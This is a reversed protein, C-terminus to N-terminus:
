YYKTYVHIDILSGNKRVQNVLVTEYKFGNQQLVQKDEDVEAYSMVKIDEERIRKPYVLADLLQSVQDNFNPHIFYEFLIVKRRRGWHRERKLYAYGVVAGTTTSELIKVDHYLKQVQYDWMLEQFGHEFNSPGYLNYVSSRIYKGEHIASLATMRPFFSWELPKVVTDSHVFYNEEFHPDIFNKMFGTGNVSEFGFSQYIFYPFGEFATGLYLAKGNRKKFDNMQEAMLLKCIGKRRHSVQTLVHAVICIGQYELTTVNSVVKGNM